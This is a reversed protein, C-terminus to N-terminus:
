SCPSTLDILNAQRLNSNKIKLSDRTRHASSRKASIWDPGGTVVVKESVGTTTLILYIIPCLVMKSLISNAASKSRKEGETLLSFFRRFM